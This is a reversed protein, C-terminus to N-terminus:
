NQDYIDEGEIILVNIKKSYSVCGDIGIYGDGYYTSFDASKGWEPKGEYKARPFSTHWHGFILTKSPLLGKRAFEYPNEWRAAAWDKEHAERWNDMKEYVYGKVFHKHIDDLRKLPIFSHVMIYHKSEFYNVMSDIFPRLRLEAVKCCTEFDNGYKAGGLECITDFTGNHCDITYPFRRDLLDIALDEHNGRVLVKNPVSELYHLVLGNEKGRDIYDGLGVLLHDPNGSEFGATDLAEKLEKFFGHCDSFVFLKM